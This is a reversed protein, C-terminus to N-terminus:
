SVPVYYQYQTRGSEDSGTLMGAQVNQVTINGDAKRITVQLTQATGAEGAAIRRELKESAQTQAAKLDVGYQVLNTGTCIGSYALMSVVAVIAMALIVEILTTGNKHTKKM